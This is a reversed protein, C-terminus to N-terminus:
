RPRVKYRKKFIPVVNAKKWDSPVIGSDISKNFLVCLPNALQAHLEKLVRPPIGDPGQAKNANLRL